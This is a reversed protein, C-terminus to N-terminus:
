ENPQDDSDGLLEANHKVEAATLARSYIAAYMVSGQVARGGTDRNGISLFHASNVTITDPARQANPPMQLTGNVFLQFPDSPSSVDIVVTYVRRMSDLNVSWVAQSNSVETRLYLSDLDSASIAFSHESDNAGVHVFRSGASTVADVSAVFEITLETSSDLDAVKSGGVAAMVRANNQTNGWSLGKSGDLQVYSPDSGHRTIELDFTPVPAHDFVVADNAPRVDMFEDLYYRVVVGDVVLGDPLTTTTGTSSGTEPGSTTTDSTGGDSTGAVVGGTTEDSPEADATSTEPSGGTSPNGETANTPTGVSNASSAGNSGDGGFTCAATLAGICVFRQM